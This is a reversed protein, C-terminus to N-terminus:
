RSAGSTVGLAALLRALDSIGGPVIRNAGAANAADSAGMPALEYGRGAVGAGPPEIYDYPSRQVQILRSLDSM